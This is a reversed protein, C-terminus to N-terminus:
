NRGRRAKPVPGQEKHLVVAKALAPIVSRWNAGVRLAQLGTRGHHLCMTIM